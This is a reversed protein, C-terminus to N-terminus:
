GSTIIHHEVDHVTKKLATPRTIEIYKRLLEEIKCEKNITAVTPQRGTTLRAKTSLLTQEDILRKNKLDPLIGHHALFDAGIIPQIVDAVVFRWSFSRRLRLDLTRVESGYTKIITNNAAFLQFDTPALSRRVMKRPFVSVDSGTDIM